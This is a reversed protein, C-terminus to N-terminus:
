RPQQRQSRECSYETRRGRVNSEQTFLAPQQEVAARLRRATEAESDADCETEAVVVARDQCARVVWQVPREGRPEAFLEFIDAESDAICICQTQPAAQAVERAQQLGEIWRL